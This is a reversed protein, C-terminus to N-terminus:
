QISVSFSFLFVNYSNPPSPTGKHHHHDGVLEDHPINSVVWHIINKFLPNEPSRADPDVIVLTLLAGKPIRESKTVAVHPRTQTFNRPLIEGLSVVEQKKGQPFDFSLSISVSPGDEYADVWDPKVTGWALKARDFGPAVMTSETASVITTTTIALLAVM